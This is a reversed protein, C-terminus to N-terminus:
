TRIPIITLLAPPSYGRAGKRQIPLAPTSFGREGKRQILLAPPSYGRGGKRLILIASPPSYTNSTSCPAAYVDKSSRESFSSCFPLHHSPYRERRLIFLHHSTYQLLLASPTSAAGGLHIPQQERWLTLLLLLLPILLPPLSYAAAGSLTYM